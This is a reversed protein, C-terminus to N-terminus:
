SGAKARIKDFNPIGDVSSVEVVEVIRNDISEETKNASNTPRAPYFCELVWDRMILYRMEDAFEKELTEPIDIGKFNAIQIFNDPDEFFMGTAIRYRKNSPEGDENEKIRWLELEFRPETFHISDRDYDVRSVKWELHFWTATFNKMILREESFLRPRPDPYDTAKISFKVVSKPQYQQQSEAPRPAFFQRQELEDIRKMLADVTPDINPRTQVEEDAPAETPVPEPAPAGKNKAAKAARMKDGFAKREEDTWQKKPM